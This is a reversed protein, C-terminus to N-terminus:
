PQTANQVNLIENGCVRGSMWALLRRAQLRVAVRSKGIMGNATSRFETIADFNSSSWDTAHVADKTAARNRNM